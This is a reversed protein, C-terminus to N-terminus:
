TPLGRGRSSDLLRAVLVLLEDLAFPKALFHAGPCTALVTRREIASMLILPIDRTTPNTALLRCLQEGDMRPMTVDSLILDPRRAQIAALAEVGDAATVVEYTAERLLDGLLDTVLPEDDVILVIANASM